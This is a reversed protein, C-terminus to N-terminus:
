IQPQLSGFLPQPRDLQIICTIYFIIGFEYLMAPLNLIVEPIDSVLDIGFPFLCGPASILFLSIHIKLGPEAIRPYGTFILQQICRDLARSKM